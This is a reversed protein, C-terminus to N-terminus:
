GAININRLRIFDGMVQHLLTTSTHGQGGREDEKLWNFFCAPFKGIGGTVYV